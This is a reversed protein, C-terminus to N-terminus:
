RKRGTSQGESLGELHMKYQKGIKIKDINTKLHTRTLITLVPKGNKKEPDGNLHKVDFLAMKEDGTGGVDIAVGNIFKSKKLSTAEAKEIKFNNRGFKKEAAFRFATFREQSIGLSEGQIKDKAVQVAVRIARLEVNELKRDPVGSFEQPLHLVRTSFPFHSLLVDLKDKEAKAYKDPLAKLERILSLPNDPTDPHQGVLEDAAKKAAALHVKGRLAALEKITNKENTSPDWNAVQAMLMAGPVLSWKAEQLEEFKAFINRASEEWVSSAQLLTQIRAELDNPLAEVASAESSPISSSPPPAVNVQTGDRGQRRQKVADIVTQFDQDVTKEDWFGGIICVDRIIEAAAEDSNRDVAYENALLVKHSDTEKENKGLAAFSTVATAFGLAKALDLKAEFAKVEELKHNLQTLRLELPQNRREADALEHKKDEPLATAADDLLNKLKGEEEWTKWEQFATITSEVDILINHEKIVEVAKSFKEYAEKAASRARFVPYMNNLVFPLNENEVSSAIDGADKKYVGVFPGRAPDRVPPVKKKAVYPNTSSMMIESNEYDTLTVRGTRAEILTNDHNHTTDGHQVFGNGAFAGGRLESAYVAQKVVQTEESTFRGQKVAEDLWTNFKGIAVGEIYELVLFDKEEARGEELTIKYLGSRQDPNIHVQVLNEHFGADGGEPTQKQGQIAKGIKIELTMKNFGAM